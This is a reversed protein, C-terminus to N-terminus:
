TGKRVGDHGFKLGDQLSESGLKARKPRKPSKLFVPKGYTNSRKPRKAEKAEDEKRKLETVGDQGWRPGDQPWRPGEQPGDQAGSPGMQPGEQGEQPRKQGDQRWRAWLGESAYRRSAKKPGDQAGQPRDQATNPGDQPWKPAM